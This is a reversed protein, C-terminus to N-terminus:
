SMRKKFAAMLSAGGVHQPWMEMRSSLWCLTNMWKHPPRFGREIRDSAKFFKLYFKRAVLLPVLPMGWYTWDCIRLGNEEALKRLCSMHYRKQHGAMVDYDSYLARLAPVNVL